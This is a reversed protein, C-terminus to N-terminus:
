RTDVLLEGAFVIRKPDLDGCGGGKELVDDWLAVNGNVARRQSHAFYTKVKRENSMKSKSGHKVGSKAKM